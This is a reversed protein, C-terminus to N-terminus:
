KAVRDNTSFSRFSFNIVANESASFTGEKTFAVIADTCKMLTKLPNESATISVKEPKSKSVVVAPTVDYCSSSKFGTVKYSWTGNGNYKYELTSGNSTLVNEKTGQYKACVIKCAATDTVPTTVTTSTCTQGKSDKYSSENILKQLHTLSASLATKLANESKTLKVKKSYNVKIFSAITDRLSTLKSVEPNKTPSYVCKKSVAVDTTKVCVDANASVVTFKGSINCSCKVPRCFPQMGTGCSLKGNNSCVSPLFAASSDSSSLYSSSNIYYWGAALLGVLVFAGIFLLKVKDGRVTRM